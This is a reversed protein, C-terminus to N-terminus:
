KRDGEKYPKDYTLARTSDGISHTTPDVVIGLIALLLFVAEVIALLKAEIGTVDITVNFLALVAQILLLVAPILAIWFTKNKVRVKWNIM